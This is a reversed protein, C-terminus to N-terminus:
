GNFGRLVGWWTNKETGTRPIFTAYDYNSGGIAGAAKTADVFARLRATTFPTGVAPPKPEGLVGGEVHVPRGTLAQTRDTENRVYTGVGTASLSSRFTWLVMPVVVESNPGIGSWPFGEWRNGANTTFPTPVIAAFPLSTQARAQQLHPVVRANFTARSVEDFREIDVGLADFRQGGPSTYDNIAVTRRVDRTMDGYAPVYWGVVRIGAAHARDLWDGMKTEDLFDKSSNYRATALFLTRVGRAKMDAVATAPNLGYDFGDVWTALGRFSVYQDVIAWGSWGAVLSPRTSRYFFGNSRKTAIVVDDGTATM